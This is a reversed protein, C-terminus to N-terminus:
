GTILAPGHFPFMFESQFVSSFIEREEIGWQSIRMVPFTTERLSQEAQRHYEDHMTQLGRWYLTWTHFEAACMHGPKPSGPRLRFYPLAVRRSGWHFRWGQEPGSDLGLPLSLCIWIAPCSSTVPPFAQTRVWETVSHVWLVLSYM